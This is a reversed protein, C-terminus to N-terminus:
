TIFWRTRSLPCWSNRLLKLYTFLFTPIATSHLHSRSLKNVCCLITVKQLFVSM